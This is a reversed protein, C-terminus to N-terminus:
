SSAGADPVVSVVHSAAVRVPAVAADLPTEAKADPASTGLLRDLDDRELTERELLAARLRNLEARHAEIGAVAETLARALLGRAEREITDITAAGTGADIALRHGLFAHEEQYQYYSPGLSDSMGYHAVMKSALETAQRLDHEAGTSVDGCM